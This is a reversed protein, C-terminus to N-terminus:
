TAGLPAAASRKQNGGGGPYQPLPTEGSNAQSKSTCKRTEEKGEDRVNKYSSEKNGEGFFGPERAGRTAVTRKRSSEDEPADSVREEGQLKERDWRGPAANGGKGKSLATGKQLALPNGTSARPATRVNRKEKRGLQPVWKLTKKLPGPKWAEARSLRGKLTPGGGGKEKRFGEGKKKKEKIAGKGTIMKPSLPRKAAPPGL